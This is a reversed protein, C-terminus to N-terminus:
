QTFVISPIMNVSYQLARAHSCVWTCACPGPWYVHVHIYMHVHGICMCTGWVACARARHTCACPGPWSGGADRAQGPGGAPGPRSGPGPRARASAGAAAAPPGFQLARVARLAKHECRSPLLGGPEAPWCHLGDTARAEMLSVNETYGQCDPELLRSGRGRSSGPLRWVTLGHCQPPLWVTVRWASSSLSNLKIGIPYFAPGPLINQTPSLCSPTVPLCEDKLVVAGCGNDSTPSWFVYPDYPGRVGRGWSKGLGLGVPWGAKNEKEDGSGRRSLHM